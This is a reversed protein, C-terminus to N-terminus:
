VACPTMREGRVTRPTIQSYLIWGICSAHEVLSTGQTMFILRSVM